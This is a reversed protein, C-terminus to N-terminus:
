KSGKYYSEEDDMGYKGKNFLYVEDFGESFIYAGVTGSTRGAVLCKCKSLLIISSLYDYANKLLEEDVVKIEALYKSGTDSFRKTKPIIIQKEFQEEFRSQMALDETVLFIYQCANRDMLEITKDRLEEFTPQVPHGLPKLNTYDTGRALVGITQRRIEEPLYEKEFIKYYLKATQSLHIYKRTFKRWYDVAIENTFFDMDLKPRKDIEECKVIMATDYDDIDKLQLPYPQEFFFEWSNDEDKIKYMNNGYNMDVVPKLNNEICYNIGGMATIFYSFLGCKESNRRILGYEAVINNKKKKRFDFM